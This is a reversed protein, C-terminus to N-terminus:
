KVAELPVSAEDLPPAARERRTEAKESVHKAEWDLLMKRAITPGHYTARSLEFSIELAEGHDINGYTAIVECAINRIFGAVDEPKGKCDVFNKSVVEEFLDRIRVDVPSALQPRQQTM